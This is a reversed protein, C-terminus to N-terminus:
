ARLWQPGGRNKAIAAIVDAVSEDTDDEVVTSKSKASAPTAAKPATVKRDQKTSPESKAASKILGDKWARVEDGVATFRESYGRNDGAAILTADRQVVMQRLVPDAFLDAYETQFSTVAQQFTLREDVTRALEDKNFSPASMRQLKELAEMAEEETGMQIARALARREELRDVGVDERPPQYQSEQEAEKRLRAAEALYADAAEVKQARAILEEMSLEMEKGAVKIKYKQPEEVLPTPEDEVVPQAEEEAALFPELKDNDGIDMFDEAHATDNQDNIRELMALRADNGTGIIDDTGANETSM